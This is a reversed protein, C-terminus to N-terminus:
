QIIGKKIRLKGLLKLNVIRQKNDWYEAGQATKDWQFFSCILNGIPIEMKLVENFGIKGKQQKRMEEMFNLRLRLPIKDLMEKVTYITKM